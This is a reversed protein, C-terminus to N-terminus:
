SYKMALSPRAPERMPGPGIEIISSVRKFPLANENFAKYMSDTSDNGSVVIVSVVPRLNM